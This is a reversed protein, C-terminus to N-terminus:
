EKGTNIEFTRLYSEYLRVAEAGPPLGGAVMQFQKEDDTVIYAARLDDAKACAALFDGSADVTFLVAYTDALEYADGRKTIRQGQAGARLWLLPAIAAFAMDLEIFQADQYTLDFFEVNEDFGEAMPFKDVFKYDGEVPEGDARRGTIAATVRPQTIYSCIGLNEWESDGPRQGASRLGQQEEVSVENNTVLISRRRGGDQRNLRAVAHATTGSGAFFDVVLADPSEAVFHRLADEVAYLSKPFPFRRDPLLAKNLETGYRQADHSPQNWATTPMVLRGTVYHAIVSGDPARGTVEVKGNEIDTIIGGTLYSVAYEQPAGATRKGARLHGAALRARAPGPTLGWNM